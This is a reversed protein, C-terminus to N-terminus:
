FSFFVSDTQFIGGLADNKIYEGGDKLVTYREEFQRKFEDLAEGVLTAEKVKKIKLPDIFRNNHKIGLHLHPGTSLGTSGVYGIIEKQRVRSGVKIGPHFRSLHLYSTEYGNRHKIVIYYGNARGYERKTVIGDAMAWVPAGIPAAYDTGLHDKLRHTIPHVRKGFKSSIRTFKVPTKLFNRALSRGEKDYYAGEGQEDEFYSGAINVTEGAYEVMLIRGYKFFTGNAYEKEVLLSVRDGVRPDSYFDIDWALIDVIQEVIAPTEGAEIFANYLSTELTVSVYSVEKIVPIDRKLAIYDGDVLRAEVVDVLSSVYIFETLDDDANFTFTIEDGIQCNRLSRIDRVANILKIGQEQKVGISSLIGDLTDGKKVFYTINRVVDGEVAVDPEPLASRLIRTDVLRLVVFVALVAIVATLIKLFKYQLIGFDYM